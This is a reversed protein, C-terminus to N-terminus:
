PLPCLLSIQAGTQPWHRELTGGMQGAALATLRSGFGGKIPITGDAASNDSPITLAPGGTETWNLRLNHGGDPLAVVNWGIEVVGTEVSLAGYKVANTALEHILLGMPTIMRAPLDVEPGALRVRDTAGISTGAVGGAYPRMINGIVGSLPCNEQSGTGQSSSHALALAHVRARIDDLVEGLPAPKRGSITIISLVVSFLNKVRHNLERALLETQANAAHLAAFQRAEAQAGARHRESRLAVVVLAVLGIGLVGVLPLLRDELTQVRDFAAQRQRAEGTRLWTLEGRLDNMDQQGTNTQVLAIASPMMGARALEITRDMEDIKARILQEARAIHAQEDDSSRQSVRQLAAIEPELRLKAQEYPQLYAGNGTLLFGRQGTEADLMIELLANLSLMSEDQLMVGQRAQRQAVVTQAILLFIAVFLASIFLLLRPMSGRLYRGLAREMRTAALLAPGKGVPRGPRPGAM